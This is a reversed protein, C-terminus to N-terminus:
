QKSLDKNVLDDISVGSLKSLVYFHYINTIVAGREIQSIGQATIQFHEAMQTQNLKLIQNRIFKFNAAVRLLLEARENESM